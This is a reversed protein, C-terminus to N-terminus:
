LMWLIRLKFNMLIFFKQKKKLDNVFYDITNQKHKNKFIFDHFNIMFENFHLRLKKEKLREFFFNLIMTKGVGVDGVLYFGSKNKKKKLLKNLFNQKFNDLYFEKLDDIVSLQNQNIEFQQDECYELFSKKLNM